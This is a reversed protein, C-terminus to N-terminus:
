IQTPHPSQPWPWPGAACLVLQMCCWCTFYGHWGAMVLVFAVGGGRRGQERACRALAGTRPMANHRMGPPLFPALTSPLWRLVGMV